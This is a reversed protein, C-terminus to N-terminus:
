DSAEHDAEAREYALATKIARVIDDGTLGQRLVGLSYADPFSDDVGLRALPPKVGHDQCWEAVAGGLGGSRQAEEITALIVGRSTIDLLADDDLPKVSAVRVVTASVGEAALAAAAERSPAVSAGFALLYRTAAPNEIRWKFYSSSTEDGANTLLTRPYRIILPGRRQAGSSERLMGKLEDIGSPTWITLNPISRLVNLDFLGQHTAGDCAVFGAHDVLM